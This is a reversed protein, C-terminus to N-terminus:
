SGPATADLANAAIGTVMRRVVRVDRVDVFAYRADHDIGTQYFVRPAEQDEASRAVLQGVLERLGGCLFNNCIASRMERPLTCGRAGQNVCGGAITRTGLYALYAAVVEAETADPHQALYRAITPVDLFARTGGQPCCAGRCQACGRGLVVEIGATPVAVNYRQDHELDFDPLEVGAARAAFSEAVVEVLHAVYAARRRTPLPTTRNPLHPVRALEYGDPDSVGLLSAATSRMGSARQEFRARAERWRRAEEARRDDAIRRRCDDADCVKGALQAQTLSRECLRCRAHAPTSNFAWQCAPQRCLARAGSAVFHVRNGCIICPAPLSPVATPARHAASHPASNTSVERLM